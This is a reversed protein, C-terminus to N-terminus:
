DYGVVPIWGDLFTKRRAMVPRLPDGYCFVLEANRTYIAGDYTVQVPSPAFPM